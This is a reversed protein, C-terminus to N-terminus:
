LTPVWGTAVWVWGSRTANPDSARARSHLPYTGVPAATGSEVLIQYGKAAVLNSTEITSNADLYMRTTEGVAWQVAGNHSKIDTNVLSVNGGLLVFGQGTSIPDMFLATDKFVIKLQTPRVTFKGAGSVFLRSSAGGGNFTISGAGRTQLFGIIPENIVLDSNPLNFIIDHNVELGSYKEIAAILSAKNTITITENKNTKDYVVFKIPKEFAFNSVYSVEDPTISSDGIVICEFGWSNGTLALKKGYGRPAHIALGTIFTSSGSAITILESPPTVNDGVALTMFSNVSFGHAGAAYVLRTTLEAGCGVMAVGRVVAFEYAYGTVTDCACSLLASYTMYGFKYGRLSHNLAYCSTMTLSTTLSVDIGHLDEGEVQFGYKSYACTVKSFQSVYTAVRMCAEQAVYFRCSDLVMHPHYYDAAYFVYDCKPVSSTLGGVFAIDKIKINSSYGDVCRLMSHIKTPVTLVVEQASTAGSIIVGSSYSAAGSAHIVLASTPYDPHVSAINYYSEAKPFWVTGGNREFVYDLAKQIAARDDHALGIGKAGFWQVNIAGEIVRKWRRGDAGVIVTGGDDVSISDTADYVFSGAVGEPKATGLVGTVYVSKLTGTYARLAAYDAVQIESRLVDDSPVVSSVVVEINDAGVPPAESFILVDGDVGGIEYTNKQQYVGSVFVQTAVETEPAFDLVFETQVGDSSFTQVSMSGGVTEQWALGTYVRMRDSETNFYLDGEQLPSGDKRTLPDTASPGYYVDAFNTVDSINDAVIVVDDINSAVTTIAENMAAVTEVEYITPGAVPEATVPDFALVRGARDARGPLDGVPGDSLPFKLTRSVVAKLQQILITVRDFANNIVRPYFGGQNTLDLPQLAELDSTLTLISGTALPATLTVAGGPAANQDPNLAVMYDSGLALLTEAGDTARVVYLEDSDFVKFAFPFVTTSDNGEFPGAVRTESNITM